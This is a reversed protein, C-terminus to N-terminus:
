LEPQAIGKTIAEDLLQKMQLTAKRALEAQQEGLKGQEEGLKGQKEGLAGQEEGLKSQQEGAQAQIEGIKSQLEGIESQLDGVQEMTAHSGLKQLKAKLKDLEATMDPVNVQVQEMKAGLEEQQRGLAEQQAGLAEQKKGLEEEPEWFKRARDITAQDRIIYPKEDREFWIFDGQISKRLKEVHRADESTGSMTLSDTKGSVIVFRQDDDYGYHYSFGVGHSSGSGSSQGHWAVPPVPPVPVMAAHPPYVTVGVPPPAIPPVPAMPARPPLPIVSVGGRITGTIAAPAPAPADQPGPEPPPTMESAPAPEPAASPETTPTAAPHPAPTQDQAFHVYQPTAATYNTARVSAALYVVPVALTVVAVAISKKLSSKVVSMAVSGKWSLIRELRQEAQGAKAMAVGQWWVRGPAAQLAEFFGLLTRAYDNRDAGGSLAAEDSAQEALDALHCDLWWALPSFWFIARHLLSLRQTLGDRRAVHSVEHAIVADLKADDWERWEAPLLITSRLAGLTVPVSIFESEAADPIVALRLSKARFTLRQVLRTEDIPRSARLLRRGFAIGVFLRLLFLSAVALYIAGSVASWRIASWRTSSLLSPSIAPVVALLAKNPPAQIAFSSHSTQGDIEASSRGKAGKRRATLVERAASPKPAATLTQSTPIDNPVAQAAVHDLSADPLFAPMPIPLAPLMWGLVPMALAVYLVATWTFLRVSPAKVRFAALGVGAAGALALTRLAPNAIQVLLSTSAQVAAILTM